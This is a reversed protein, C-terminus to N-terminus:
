IHIVHQAGHFFCGNYENLTNNTKCYGDLRYRQGDPCVVVKESEEHNLAHRIFNQEKLM